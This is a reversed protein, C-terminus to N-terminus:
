LHKIIVRFYNVEKSEKCFPAWSVFGNAEFFLSIVNKLPRNVLTEMKLAPSGAPRDKSKIILGKKSYELTYGKYILV